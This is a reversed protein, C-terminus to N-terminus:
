NKKVLMASIVQMQRDEPLTEVLQVLNNVASPGPDRKVCPHPIGRGLRQFCKRCLQISTKATSIACDSLRQKVNETGCVESSSAPISLEQSFTRKTGRGRPNKKHGMSRATSCIYCACEYKEMSDNEESPKESTHMDILIRYNPMKPLEQKSNSGSKKYESLCLRCTVCISSPYVPDVTSFGPSIFERILAAIKDSIKFFNYQKNGLVIKQGCPACVKVRNEQHTCFWSSSSSMKVISLLFQFQVPSFLILEPM